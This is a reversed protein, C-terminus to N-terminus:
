MPPETQKEQVEKGSVKGSSEPKACFKLHIKYIINKNRVQISQPVRTIANLYLAHPLTYQGNVWRLYDWDIRAVRM